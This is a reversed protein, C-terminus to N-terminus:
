PAALERRLWARGFHWDREITRSPTDLEAAIEDITLSGLLRLEVVRAHRENLSALETLKADLDILDVGASGVSGASKPDATTEDCFVVTPQGGGRKQRKAARARDTLVQRMARAAIAFFHRRGEMSDIHLKMKIWAEHVLATPQLTVCNREHGYIASALGRLEDYVLNLLRESAGTDGARLQGLLQTVQTEQNEDM